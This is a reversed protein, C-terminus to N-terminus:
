GKVGGQPDLPPEGPITVNYKYLKHDDPPVVPLGSRVGHDHFIHGAFPSEGPFEITFCKGNGHQHNQMCHWVVEENKSVSVWFTDPNANPPRNIQVPVPVPPTSPGHTPTAM